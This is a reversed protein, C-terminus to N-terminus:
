RCGAQYLEQFCVFDAITYEGDDNCDASSVEAQWNLQFAVFDLINLLGDGNVDAACGAPEDFVYVVRTGPPQSVRSHVLITKDRAALRTGFRDGAHPDIPSVKTLWTGDPEYVYAVGSNEDHFPEFFAGIAIVDGNMAVDAGFRDEHAGENNTLKLIQENTTLDFLYAAGSQVGQNNTCAICGVLLRDEHLDLRGGFTEHEIENPALTATLKGTPIDYLYVFGGQDRAGVIATDGYLRVASGFSQQYPQEPILKAILEGTNVDYVCAFGAKNGGETAGAIAYTPGIDVSHGLTDYAQPDDSRLTHLREGTELDYIYAAGAGYDGDFPAYSSGVILRDGHIAVSWGFGNVDIDDPEPEITLVLEYTTLDFVYAANEHAGVIAFNGDVDIDVGIPPFDPDDDVGLIGVQGYVASVEVELTTSADEAAYAASLLLTLNEHLDGTSLVGGDISVGLSPEVSWDVVDTVDVDGDDYHAICQYVADVQETVQIPGIIELSLFDQASATTVLALLMILRM